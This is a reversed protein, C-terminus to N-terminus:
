RTVKVAPGPGPTVIESIAAARLLMKLGPYWDIMGLLAVYLPVPTFFRIGGGVCSAVDVAPAPGPTAEPESIGCCTDYRTFKLVALAPRPNRPRTYGPNTAFLKTLVLPFMFAAPKVAIWSIAAVITPLKVIVDPGFWDVMWSIM